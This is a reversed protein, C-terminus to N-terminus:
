NSRRSGRAGNARAAQVAADFAQNADKVEQYALRARELESKNIYGKEALEPLAEYELLAKRETSRRAERESQARALDAKAVALMSEATSKALEYKQSEFRVLLDGKSVRAGEPV